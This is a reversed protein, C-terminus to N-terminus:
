VALKNGSEFIGDKWAKLKEYKDRFERFTNMTETLQNIHTQLSERQAKAEVLQAQLDRNQKKADVLQAQLDTNQKNADDLQANITTTKEACSRMVDVSKEKLTKLDMSVKTEYERMM